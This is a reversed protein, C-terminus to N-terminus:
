FPLPNTHHYALLYLPSYYYTRLRSLTDTIALVFYNNFGGNPSDPSSTTLFESKNVVEQCLPLPQLNTDLREGGAIWPEFKPVNRNFVNGCAHTIM